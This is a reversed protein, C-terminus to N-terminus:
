DNPLEEKKTGFIAGCNACALVPQQALLEQGNPSVLASIIYLQVAPLFIPCECILCQQKTGKSVDVQIQQPQQPPLSRLNNPVKNYQSSM